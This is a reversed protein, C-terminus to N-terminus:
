GRLRTLTYKKKMTLKTVVIYNPLFSVTVRLSHKFFKRKMKNIVSSSMISFNSKEGLFV